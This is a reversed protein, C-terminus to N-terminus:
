RCRRFGETMLDDPRARIGGGDDLANDAEAATIGVEDIAFLRLDAGFDGEVAVEVDELKGACQSLNFGFQLGDGVADKGQGSPQRLSSGAVFWM